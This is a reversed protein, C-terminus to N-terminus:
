GAAARTALDAVPLTVHFTAGEELNEVWIHGSHATVISKAISLGLGMGERRTTYFSEFLRPLQDSPVGPGRDSVSVEVGGDGFASSRLVLYRRSEATGEMAEMGNVVLNLLVQQLQTRDGLVRPLSYDLDMRLQIGRKQAEGAVLWTVDLVVANVDLPQMQTEHRRAFARIRSIVADVRLVNERIGAAIEHMAERPPSDMELLKEMTQADLQIASMPQRVEHAIAATLEGMVALRQAHELARSTEEARKRETIDITSGIYGAFTGDADYRPVGKAFVWRYEGDHRRLRFELEAPKRANFAADYAAVCANVDQPHVSETWGIGLVQEISRGTFDLWGQNAFSCLRDPGAMWLLMPASQAIRRFRDESERLLRDAADRQEILIAILYLPGARLLLHYQLALATDSLARGVFPGHGRLAADVEFFAVLAVAGTAGSMGFRIAAWFLFPVPAYFRLQSYDITEANAAVYGTVILGATLLGLEVARYRDGRLAQWPRAFVLYLIAPTVVLQALADGLFWQSWSPWFPYGVLSRLWAGQLASVAPVGVVAVLVFAFFERVNAFRLPDALLLRLLAASALAKVMDIAYTAIQFWLPESGPGLLLRLPLAVLIFIWWLRPKSKLLACLLVADPFWFPSAAAQSFAMGFRFAAAYAAIFAAFWLVGSIKRMDMGANM